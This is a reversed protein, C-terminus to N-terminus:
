HYSVLNLEVLDLVVKSVKEIIPVAANAWSVNFTDTHYDRKTIINKGLVAKLQYNMRYEWTYVAYSIKSKHDIQMYITDPSKGKPLESVYTINKYGNGSLVNAIKEDFSKKLQNVSQSVDFSYWNGTGSGVDNLFIVIKVQGKINKLEKNAQNKLPYLSAADTLTTTSNKVLQEYLKKHDSLLDKDYKIVRLYDALCLLANSFCTNQDDKYKSIREFTTVVTDIVNNKVVTADVSALVFYDDGDNGVVYKEFQVAPYVFQELDDSSFSSTYKSKYQSLLKERLKNQCTSRAKQKGIEEGEDTDIDESCAYYLKNESVPLKSSSMWDPKGEIFEEELDDNAIAVSCLLSLSLTYLWIAMTNKNLKIQTM